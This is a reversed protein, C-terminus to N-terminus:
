RTIKNGPSLHVASTAASGISETFRDDRNFQYSCYSSTSDGNAFKLFLLGMCMNAYILAMGIGRIVGTM